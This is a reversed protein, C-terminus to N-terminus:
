EAPAAAEGEHKGIRLTATKGFAVRNVALAFALTAFFTIAMFHIFHMTVIGEPSLYFTYLGYFAVGFVVGAMAARYDVNNFMLALVFASLVPMSGLGYLEQLLNILSEANQFVPVLALAAFTMILSFITAVRPVNANPQFYRQHIDVVYLAAVSNLLSNFTTLVAAAMMAAFAGSLYGPLIDGVLTGFAADNIDGYLKFAVVGPVVVIVPVILLRIGAAALIGKQAERVTPAAMARQTITQNTSWYYIQILIMGTFLTHWPIPSGDAGIMSLREMPVDTVIDFDVAKLSLFVVLLALTLLGVGSFTDSVAVARLGGLIAYAAGLTAFFFAIVMLPIDVKFMTQMFLSGGYLAAPLFILLSGAMFIISILARIHPNNYRRELLETTTTCNNRYYVPIFVFALIFLGAVAALEWWALLLMQNGNMGVLQDTSLNTLTISGAVFFWPLGNGALFYDHASNKDEANGRARGGSCQWWTLGGILATLGFFVGIQIPDLAFGEVEM